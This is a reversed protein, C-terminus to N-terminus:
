GSRHRAMVAAQRMAEILSKEDAKGTGAIDFATGHDVSTRIFPLGVTINVGAEFGLVKVPIHGQDHYMAVVVDFDGRVARFFVTDAPVPGDVVIGRNRAEQLAPHIKDEEEGHGFLGEEGAHPNIAAVAIRPAQIGYSQMATHSMQIVSLVREWTISGIADLLGKHTTVHVVKLKPSWLMMAYDKTNSLDALIETHGPHHCGGAKLAAKNLPGTCIADIRKAMALEVAREIYLYAARGAEPHVQGTPVEHLLVKLDICAISETDWPEAPLESYSKVGRASGVYGVARELIKADGIVIPTCIDFLYRHEWMRAIIEPGIGCADGMTVAIIPKDMAM